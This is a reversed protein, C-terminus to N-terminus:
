ESKTDAPKDTKESKEPKKAITKKVEPEEKGKHSPVFHLEQVEFPKGHITSYDFSDFDGVEPRHEAEFVHENLSAHMHPDEYKGLWEDSDVGEGYELALKQQHSHYDEIEADRHLGEM